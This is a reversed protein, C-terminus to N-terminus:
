LERRRRDAISEGASGWHSAPLETVLVKITDIPAGLSTQIANTVQAILERIQDADRGEVMQIQVIPM